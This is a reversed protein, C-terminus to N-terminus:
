RSRYRTVIWILVSLVLLMLVALEEYRRLDSVLRELTEGVAYGTGAVVAVWLMAGLTNLLTFLPTSLGSMGIAIPAVTRLGYLFRFGLTISVRYRQLKKEIRELKHLWTSHAQVLARGKKRGLHFLIQDVLITAIVAVIMVFWLSLYGRHALFGAIILPTEGEFLVMTFLAPYGYTAVFSELTM